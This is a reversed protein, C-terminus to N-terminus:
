AKYFSPQRFFAGLSSRRKDALRSCRRGVDSRGDLREKSDRGDKVIELTWRGLARTIVVCSNPTADM